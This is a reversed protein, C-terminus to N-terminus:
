RDQIFGGNEKLVARLQQIDIARTEGNKDQALAAATGAAQGTIFCCPMVRVSAQMSRDASICRGATLLNDIGKVLLSRYPIGYSEGKKYRLEAFKKAYEAYGASSNKGSHIDIPYAYRGIEDEFSSRNLFDDVTLIYDGIIRRTERVGIQTGSIVPESNEYGSLYEKYYKRYELLQKRGEIMGRTLSEATTGDIDYVHGANSGGTSTSIPWIGPLHRDENTFIKDAFADDLRRSDPRVVNKWDIGNWLACLTAAMMDGNEDGKAFEAGALAALDGDGTCDIFTKAKVAYSGGKAACIVYQIHGNEAIVDSVPSFFEFQVGAEVLMKDYCLKLVEVPISDPCFKKYEEPANERLFDRVYHGVDGALFNVGDGFQMFAPVLAHVGAGGFAGFTEALFVSAGNKAATYAAAVGAPGGGAVFVDTEYKVPISKEYSIKM